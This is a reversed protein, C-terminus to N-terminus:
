DALHAVKPHEKLRKRWRKCWRHHLKLMIQLQEEESLELDRSDNEELLLDQHDCIFLTRTLHTHIPSPSPLSVPPPPAPLYLTTSLPPFLIRPHLFHWLYLRTLSSVQIWTREETVNKFNYICSEPVLRKVPQVSMGENVVEDMDSRYRRYLSYGALPTSETYSSSSEGM